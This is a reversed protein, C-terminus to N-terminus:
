AAPGRAPHTNRALRESLVDRAHAGLDSSLADALFQGAVTALKLNAHQSVGVLVDFADDAGLGFGAMIAGKAQDIEARSVLARELALIRAEARLARQEAQEARRTLRDIITDRGAGPSPLDDTPTSLGTLHRLSM